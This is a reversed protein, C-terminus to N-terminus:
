TVLKWQRGDHRSCHQIEHGHRQLMHYLQPSLAIGKKVETSVNRGKMTRELTGIVQRGKVVRERM